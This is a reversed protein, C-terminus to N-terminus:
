LESNNEKKLIYIGDTIASLTKSNGSNISSIRKLVNSLDQITKSEEINM